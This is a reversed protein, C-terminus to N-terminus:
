QQHGMNKSKETRWFSIFSSLTLIIAFSITVAAIPRTFFISFSGKSLMLSQRLNSEFLPGLVFALILPAGEYDFKRFLYGVIGFITMVIIDFTSNNLSYAGIVCFLIVLPFLIRYPIKLVQVWVPILPLNLVLLMINGVYMSSVVGWFVDPHEKLLLPGPRIGHILLAGMFLAMIVGPPIGLTFFPIFAGSTASNNAAEPGAVAEIAGKGFREPNKSLRKEVGYSAFAAIVPNGGPLMGIFFGIVTGRLIAWKSQMWDAVTPFLNRIKTKLIETSAAEEINVMIEAIGYLGMAVPVLSIGDYLQVLSFTLRTSGFIPDIGISSLLIGFFAMM